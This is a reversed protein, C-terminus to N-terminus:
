YKFGDGPVALRWSSEAEEKQQLARIAFTCARWAAYETSVKNKTKKGKKDLLTVEKSASKLAKKTENIYQTTTMGLRKFEIGLEKAGANYLSATALVKEIGNAKVDCAKKVDVKMAEKPSITVVKVKKLATQAKDAVDNSAVSGCAVFLLSVGSILITNYIKKM